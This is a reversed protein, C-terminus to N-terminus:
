LRFHRLGDKNVLRLRRGSITILGEEELAHILRITTETATGALGAIEERSLKVALTEGDAEYGFKDALMLLVEALRERVPKRALGALHHEAHRLEETLLRIVAHSFEADSELVRLFIERPVVMVESDELASASCSLSDGGLIARYAMLDGPAALHIIQERGQQDTTYLKMKGSVLFYVHAPIKGEHFLIEGKSLKRMESASDIQQRSSESLRTYM